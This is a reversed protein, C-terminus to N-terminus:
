RDRSGYRTDDAKTYLATTTQPIKLLTQETIKVVCALLVLESITNTILQSTKFLDLKDEPQLLVTSM